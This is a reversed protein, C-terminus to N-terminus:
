IAYEILKDILTPYDTGFHAMLKPYMSIKTFGPLTNIENFVIGGDGVFFDVRALGRCDLARFIKIALDRIKETDGDSIRAPIHYTATDNIYKTDYDYFDSGPVLEGPYSAITKRVGNNKTDLVAVEIESGKIYEEVLVKDDYRLAGLFANEFETKNKAKVVGVSSGTGAPKVFLPYGFERECEEICSEIDDGRRFLRWPAMPIDLNELLTKTCAKDMSVASGRNDSGVYSVGSLKLLGQLNGDECNEGHVIPLFCDINQIKFKGEAKNLIMIGHHAPCPSIIAPILNESDEAFTADAIKSNDGVYLFQRGDKLIGMKFLEYKEPNINDIVSAASMCSVEHESSMGGFIICLKLKSMF